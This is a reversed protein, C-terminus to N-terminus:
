QHNDAIVIAPDLFDCSQTQKDKATQCNIEIMQVYLALIDQSSCYNKCLQEAYGTRWFLFNNTM